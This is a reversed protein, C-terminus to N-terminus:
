PVQEYAHGWTELIPAQWLWKATLSQGHVGSKSVFVVCKELSTTGAVFGNLLAAKLCLQQLALHTGPKSGCTMGIDGQGFSM